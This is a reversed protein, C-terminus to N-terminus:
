TSIPASPWVSWMDWFWLMAHPCGKFAQWADEQVDKLCEGLIRQAGCKACMNLLYNVCLYMVCRHLGKHQMQQSQTDWQGQGWMVRTAPFIPNWSVEDCTPADQQLLRSAAIIVGRPCRLWLWESRNIFAYSQEEELVWWSGCQNLVLVFSCRDPIM